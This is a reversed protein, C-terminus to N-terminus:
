ELVAVRAHLWGQRFCRRCSCRPGRRWGRAQVVLHNDSVDQWCLKQTAKQVSSRGQTAVTEGTLVLHLVGEEEGGWWEDAPQLRTNRM